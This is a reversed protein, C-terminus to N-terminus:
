IADPAVQISNRSQEFVQKLQTYQATPASFNIGLMRGQLATFYMYSHLKEQQKKSIGELNVWSGGNIAIFDQQVWQIGPVTKEMHKGMLQKLEPLQRLTLPQRTLTIAISATRDDNIFVYNPPNSTPYQQKIAAAPMAQFGAPPMLSLQRELMYVRGIGQPTQTIVATPEFQQNQDNRSTATSSCGLLGLLCSLGIMRIGIGPKPM